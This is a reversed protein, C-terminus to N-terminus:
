SMRKRKFSWTFSFRSVENGQADVGVTNATIVVPEGTELTEAIAQFIKDGDKCTFTVKSKAQKVFESEQGVVFTSVPHKGSQAAMLIMAGLSMEAAMTQVAFYMSGFPNQNLWGHPVTVKAEHQTLTTIRLRAIFGMPLKWLLFAKFLFPNLVQRQFKALKEKSFSATPAIPTVLTNPQTITAM